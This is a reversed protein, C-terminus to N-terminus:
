EYDGGGLLYPIDEYVNPDTLDYAFKEYEKFSVYSPNRIMLFPIIYVKPFCVACLYDFDAESYPYMERGHRSNKERKLYVGQRHFTTKVQLRVFVEGKTVIIDAASSPNDPTYMDYKWRHLLYRVLSEGALGISYNDTPKRGVTESKTNEQSLSELDM